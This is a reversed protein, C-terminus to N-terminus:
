LLKLSNALVRLLDVRVRGGGRGVEDLGRGAVGARTAEGASGASVMRTVRVPM